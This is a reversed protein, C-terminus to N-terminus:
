CLRDDGSFNQHYCVQRPLDIERAKVIGAPKTVMWLPM